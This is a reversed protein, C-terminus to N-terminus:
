ASASGVINSRIARAIPSKMPPSNEASRRRRPARCERQDGRADHDGEDDDGEHHPANGTRDPACRASETFQEAFGFLTRGISSRRAAADWAAFDSHSAAIMMCMGRAQVSSRRARRREVRWRPCGDVAEGSGRRLTKGAEAASRSVAAAIKSSTRYRRRGPEAVEVVLDRIEVTRDRRRSRALGFRDPGASSSRM